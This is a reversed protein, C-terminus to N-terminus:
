VKPLGQSLSPSSKPLVQTLSPPKEALANMKALLYAYVNAIGIYRAKGQLVAENM